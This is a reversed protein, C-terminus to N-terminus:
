GCMSQVAQQIEDPSADRVHTAMAVARTLATAAEAM